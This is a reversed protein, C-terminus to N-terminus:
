RMKDRAAQGLLRYSKELTLQLLILTQPTLEAPSIERTLRLLTRRLGSARHAARLDPTLKELRPIIFEAQQLLLAPPLDRV